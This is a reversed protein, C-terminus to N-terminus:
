ILTKIQKNKVIRSIVFVIKVHKRIETDYKEDDVSISGLYKLVQKIKADVTQIQFKPIDTKNIFM